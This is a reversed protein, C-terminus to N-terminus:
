APQVQVGDVTGAWDRCQESGQVGVPEGQTGGGDGVDFGGPAVAAQDLDVFPEGVARSSRVPVAVQEGPGVPEGGGDDDLEVVAGGDTVEHEAPVVRPGLAVDGLLGDSPLDLETPDEVGGLGAAAVCSFGDALEEAMAEFVEADVADSRAAEGGVFHGPAEHFTEAHASLTVGAAVRQV